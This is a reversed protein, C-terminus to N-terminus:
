GGGAPAGEGLPLRFDFPYVHCVKGMEAGNHAFIPDTVGYVQWGAKRAAACALPSDDFLVCDKDPVGCLEAARHYLAPDRKELGLEAATLIHSFCDTLDHHALAARCLEPM